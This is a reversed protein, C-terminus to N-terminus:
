LVAGLHVNKKREWSSRAVEDMSLASGNRLKIRLFKIYNDGNSELIRFDYGFEKGV